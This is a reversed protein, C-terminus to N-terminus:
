LFPNNEREFKISSEREHGPLVITDDKLPMLKTKISNILQKYNGGPFDTRGISGCFLTDGTFVVNNVLFCMGGPTHGPTEICKISLNGLTLIDGDKIVKDESTVNWLSGYVGMGKEMIKKDKDNIHVPINYRNKIANVAGVHDEHGHTLLIYKLTINSKEIEDILIDEDGGPDIICGIRTDEEFLIYCNASYIGAPIRKIKM